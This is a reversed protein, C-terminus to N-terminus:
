VGAKVLESTNSTPHAISLELGIQNAIEDLDRDRDIEGGHVLLVIQDSLGPLFRLINARHSPDLRGFPTDMIVPGRKTALRNLAGILSLAVVQEAGASREVVDLGEKDLITLGYRDNIRLGQYSKDTTLSCFIESSEREVDQRLEAVFEDIAATFLALLEDLVQVETALRELAPVHHERITRKLATIEADDHAIVEELKSIDTELKSLRAIMLKRKREYEVVQEPDTGRLRDLVRDIEQETKYTNRVNDRVTEELLRIADVVGAPAVDRLQKIAGGLEDARELNAKPKLEELLSEMSVLEQRIQARHEEPIVQRCTSCEKQDLATRLEECKRAATNYEGIASVIKAREGELRVLEHRLRPFLADRWLRRVLERRRKLFDSRAEMLADHSRRLEELRAADAKLDAFRKLEEELLRLQSQSEGLQGELDKRDAEARDREEAVVDLREAAEAAAKHKKAEKRFRREVEAKIALIDDRGRTVAPVGLIMEIAQRVATGQVNEEARVLEEYENLLEGDFLFFRSIEGPLLDNVVDDFQASPVTDGDVEIDLVQDFDQERTPDDVGNKAQRRRRLAVEAHKGKLTTDVFLRVTVRRHGERFAEKNILNRTAIREGFRDKAIGYLAWRVANLLMTKGTMNEGYVVTVPQGNTPFDVTHHEYYPGFNELEITRIRM